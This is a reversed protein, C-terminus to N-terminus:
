TCRGGVATNQAQPSVEPSGSNLCGVPALVLSICIFSVRAAVGQNSGAALGPHPVDVQGRYSRSRYRCPYRHLPAPAQLTCVNTSEGKIVKGKATRVPISHFFRSAGSNTLFGAL